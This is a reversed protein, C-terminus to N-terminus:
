SRVYGSFISFCETNSVIPPYRTFNRIEDDDDKAEQVTTRAQTKEAMKSEVVRRESPDLQSLHGMKAAIASAPLTHRASWDGAPCDTGYYLTIFAVFLLIPVPVVAFSTRWAAAPTFGRQDVLSQFLAVMVIFTVGGGMNGWGGVLGNATGVINKDFFATTWALCPVFTASCESHSCFDTFRLSNPLYSTFESEGGLIGIFFRIVYLGNVSTVTGALGSPIAGVILVSAM